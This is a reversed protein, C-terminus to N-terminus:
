SPSTARSRDVRQGLAETMRDLFIAIFVVSLGAEVGLGLRLTSIARIVEAGLGGAGVFGAVVVMSLALMIVQNVGAMITALALPLQVRFLIQNKTAGFAEAAEVVEADVQRIGLETLRIGPPIAFILTAVIGPVIGIRFFFIAPILYVFSPLTQMLDLVPRVATSVANSRSAVVGLPVAVTLACLTAVTILSLTAMAAEWMRMADILLFAPGIFIAFQWSRLKWALLAVMLAMVPAPLFLLLDELGETPGRLLWRIGDWLPAANDRLWEVVTTVRDGVPIRPTDPM